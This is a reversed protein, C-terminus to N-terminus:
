AAVRSLDRLSGLLVAARDLRRVEEEVAKPTIEQHLIALNRVATKRQDTM